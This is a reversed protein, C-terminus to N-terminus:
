GVPESAAKEAFRPDFMRGVDPARRVIGFRAEWRAWPRLSALDLTGFRGSAGVFASDLVGLQTALTVPNLGANEAIVDQASSDPDELTFRYGRVLARVTAAVLAPSTDITARSTTLVLEPYPPAGFQDVRFERAGPMRKRLEVGEVNWFATAAAVRHALLSKVANFGIDIEHVRDPDGGAGKVTSRLVAKDSPLGTVGVRRGELDRPSRIGPEALVAALPQQVLALVGVIDRGKARAIALDHIDLVAFTVRGSLLLKTADAGSAPTRVHLHVGEAEDYGRRIASYIGAHVGNPTFDLLLTADQDPRAETGSGGCGALVACAVLALLVALSGLM